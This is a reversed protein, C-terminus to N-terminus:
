LSKKKKKLCKKQQKGFNWNKAGKLAINDGNLVFTRSAKEYPIYDSKICTLVSGFKKGFYAM